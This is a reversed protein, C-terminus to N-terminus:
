RFFLCTQDFARYTSPKPPATVTKEKLLCVLEASFEIPLRSNSLSKKELGAIGLYSLLLAKCDKMKSLLSSFGDVTM